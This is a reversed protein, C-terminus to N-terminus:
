PRGPFATILDDAANTIVTYVSTPQGTVRDIGITRGADVVREFNGRAQQVRQVSSANRVLAAADEGVNFLSKGVNSAGEATHSALVHVLGRETVNIGRAANAASSHFPSKGNKLRYVAYAVAAAVAVGGAVYKSVTGGDSDGDSEIACQGPAGGGGPQTGLLEMCFFPDQVCAARVSDIYLGFSDSNVVPNGDVYGYTNLGGDLGIPDSTLYRGTSPDYTRFYNFHLGTEADYYQGPFRLNYVFDTLDGDPDEQPATSGFPDSEWRWIVTNGNTIARPTGVHDTHVYYKNSGVLVAVPAGNFWVTEQIANGTADYEGILQGAEDYAFLTITSGDDKKVRQGQGNHQYTVAGSDVSVVRGRDDYGYSHINDSTVNGAADYTFTKATPGTTSALRNSNTVLSYSYTSGETLSERNGNEDYTIDQAAPLPAAGSASFDTLQGLANYDFGLDHRADDLSILQGADDYGLTRTDTVVSQGDMLGRLDFSRSHATSNGWSWGNVPGFPDYSAGSLITTADVTVSDALHQDYGYTMVKGSPLTMTILRGEADYEYETTLTVSGITQSKATVEGFNNYSWTTQGSTDTIKNLRGIANSGTDYEYAFTDSNDLEIDTLRNLADYTTTTVKGRADTMTAVNGAADHTYTSTGRDPSIEEILNDLDDYAFTTTAGNAATVTVPNDHADYDFSIVGSLADITQTLRNLADYGHQTLALEPDAQDALNGVDDYDVDTDFGGHTIVDLRGNLDYAYSVARSLTSGPDYTDVSQLNGMADYAYEISNGLHDTVSELYHAATYTYTLELGDPMGASLLQGADDYSFTTVRASGATPTQTVTLLHGRDDYGFATELGNADTMQLLRGSGDYADYTTVQSLANTVSELRGCEDGSSCSYYDLTTLDTVDSRPGNVTLPQGDANYTVAWSRSNTGDTVTIATPNGNADYGYETDNKPAHIATPLRFDAHWELTTEREESSGDGETLTETLGRANRASRTVNGNWDTTEEVFGNGDFSRSEIDGGPCRSCVDGAVATVQRHGQVVGFTYTRSAGNATTLTTTGNGNYAFTVQEQGDAHESLIARGADDYDWTAFREGNEDILGTLYSPLRYDEYRYQRTTSDPYTVQTLNRDLDYDYGITGDPTTVATLRANGDYAFTMAHGFPGTVKDLTSSDDDGGQAATLNYLLTETQGNRQTVATLQGGSNYTEQVDNGDTFIWDSGSAVLSVSGDLTNVWDSGSQVFRVSSGNARTVTKVTSAPTFGSWGVTSRVEFHAKVSGGVSITCTNGGAFSATGASLGGGYVTAKIDDWGSTCAASATSYPDSQDVPSTFNILPGRDPQENLARSYSHRWGIGSGPASRYAGRSNYYRVLSLGVVSMYDVESEFKSGDAPNCPNSENVIPDITKPCFAPEAVPLLVYNPNKEIQTFLTGTCMGNAYSYGANCTIGTTQAVQMTYFSSIRYWTGDSQQCHNLAYSIINPQLNWPADADPAYAYHYTYTIKAEAVGASYQYCYRYQTNSSADILTIPVAPYDHSFYHQILGGNSTDDRFVLNDSAIKTPYKKSPQAAKTVTFALAEDYTAFAPGFGPNLGSYYYMGRWSTSPLSPTSELFYYVYDDDENYPELLSHSVTTGRMVVEADALNQYCKGAWGFNCPSSPVQALAASAILAIASFITQKVLTM